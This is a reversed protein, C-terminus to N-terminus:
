PTLRFLHELLLPHVQFFQLLVDPKLDPPIVPVVDMVMWEPKNTSQLFAEVIELRKILKEKRQKTATKLELRIEDMIQRLNLNKLLYKIAEAGTIAKYRGFYRRKYMAHEQESIIQDVALDDIGDGVEIVYYSALYVIEEIEKTKKELLTAIKSPTNRLYWTHVVPAALAIYGMRERRVKSETLEVGCKECVRHEGIIKRAPKGCACQYDKTPGFIVECFLGEREPKQTRYNLTEHKKVEGRLTYEVSNGNDDIYTVKDKRKPDYTFEKGQLVPNAWSVIEEPSAIGIKM